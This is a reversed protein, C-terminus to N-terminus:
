SAVADTKYFLSAVTVKRREWIPHFVAGVSKVFGASVALINASYMSVDWFLLHAVHWEEVLM